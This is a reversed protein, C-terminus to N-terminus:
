QFIVIKSAFLKYFSKEFYERLGWKILYFLVWEAAILMEMVHYVASLRSEANVQLTGQEMHGRYFPEKRNM